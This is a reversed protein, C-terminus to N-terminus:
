PSGFKARYEDCEASVSNHEVCRTAKHRGVELELDCWALYPLLPVCILISLVWLCISIRNHVGATELCFWWSVCFAVFDAATLATYFNM